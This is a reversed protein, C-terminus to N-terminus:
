YKINEIPIGPIKIDIARSSGLKSSKESVENRVGFTGRGNPL